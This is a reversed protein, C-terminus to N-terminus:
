RAQLTVAWSLTAAGGKPQFAKGWTGQADTRCISRFSVEDTLWGVHISRDLSIERRMGILYQSLDVLCIDGQSSLPAMHETTLVDLGFIRYRGSVENMVPYWTNGGTGVTLGLLLPITSPHVLWVARRQCAPHLRGYLNCLNTFSITNALQSGDKNVVILAPDALIGLPQGAGDGNIFAEDLFWGFARTIATALLNEFSAADEVLESSSNIMVALKRATLEIIRTKAKGPTISGAEALWAGSIGAPAGTSNDRFDFGAVKKTESTMPEVRARPRIVETELSTDMLEAGFQDPVLQGGDSPVTETMGALFRPDSQGRHITMAFEGLSGWGNTGHPAGFLEAYRHRAVPDLRSIVGPPDGYKGPPDGLAGAHAFRPDRLREEAAKFASKEGLATDLEIANQLLEGDLMRLRAAAETASSENGIETVRQLRHQERLLLARQDQLEQVKNM